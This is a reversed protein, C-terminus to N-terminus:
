ADTVSLVNGDPDCFWAVRVTGGPTTLIGLEDQPFNRYINFIVGLGVGLLSTPPSITSQLTGIQASCIRRPRWSGRQM